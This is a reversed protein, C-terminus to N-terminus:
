VRWSLGSGARGVAQALHNAHRTFEPGADVRHMIFEKKGLRQAEEAAAVIMAHHAPKIIETQEGRAAIVHVLYQVEGDAVQVASQLCDLGTINGLRAMPRNGTLQLYERVAAASNGPKFAWGKGASPKTAPLDARMQVLNLILDRIKSMGKAGPMAAEIETVMSAINPTTSANLTRPHIKNNQLNRYYVYM